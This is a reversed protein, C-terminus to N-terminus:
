LTTSSPKDSGSESDGTTERVTLNLSAPVPVTYAAAAPRTAFPTLLAIFLTFLLLALVPRSILRIGSM